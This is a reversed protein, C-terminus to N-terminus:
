LAAIHSQVGCDWIWHTLVYLTCMKTCINQLAIPLIHHGIENQFGVTGLADRLLVDIVHVVLPFHREIIILAISESELPALRM